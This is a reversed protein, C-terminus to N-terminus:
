RKVSTARDVLYATTDVLWDDFWEDFTPLGSDFLQQKMGIGGAVMSTPLAPRWTASAWTSPNRDVVAEDRWAGDQDVDWVTGRPEGATVLMTDYSCGRTGIPIAGNSPYIATGCAWRNGAVVAERIRQADIRTFPFEIGPSPTPGLDEPDEEWEKYAYLLNELITKPSYLGYCPGAGYGVSLLHKRYQDPLAVGLASEFQVMEDLSVPHTEYRHLRAGFVELGPDLKKLQAIRSQRISM